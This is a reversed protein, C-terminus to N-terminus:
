MSFISPWSLRDSQHNLAQRQLNAVGPVIRKKVVFQFQIQKPLALHSFILADNNLSTYGERATIFLFHTM